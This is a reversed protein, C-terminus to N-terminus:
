MMYIVVAVAVASLITSLAISSSSAEAGRQSRKMLKHMNFSTPMAALMVATWAWSTPIPFVHKALMWVVVPFAALKLATVAAAPAMNGHIKYRVLMGGMAFLACPAAANGLMRLVINLEKPMVVKGFKVYLVGLILAILIPSKIHDLLTQGIATLVEGGKGMRIRLVVGLMVAMVVGHTGVLLVIPLTVKAKLVFLAVPFGMLVINSHSAGVGFMSQEAQTGDFAYRSVLMSILLIILAGAYYSALLEWTNTLDKPIGYRVIARFIYAPLAINFVFSALSDSVEASLLKFRVSLFGALVIAIVPIIYIFSNAM